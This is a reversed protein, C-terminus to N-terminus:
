LTPHHWNKIIKAETLPCIYGKIVLKKLIALIINYYIGFVFEM